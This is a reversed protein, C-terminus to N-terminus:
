LSLFFVLVFDKPECDWGLGQGKGVSAVSTAETPRAQSAMKPCATSTWPLYSHKRPLVGCDQQSASVYSHGIAM